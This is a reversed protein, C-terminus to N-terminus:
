FVCFRKGPIMSSSPKIASPIIAPWTVNSLISDTGYSTNGLSGTAPMTASVNSDNNNSSSKAIIPWSRTELQSDQSQPSITDDNLSDAAGMSGNIATNM